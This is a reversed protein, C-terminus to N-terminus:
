IIEMDFNSNKVILKEHKKIVLDSFIVLFLPIVVLSVFGLPTVIFKQLYGLKPIMAVVKGYVNKYSVLSSDSVDNNDGKTRFYLNGNKRVKGVVRHTITMGSYRSDSSTFTIVDGIEINEPNMKKVVIADNVEITPRMSGSVIVYASLFGGTNTNDVKNEISSLLFSGILLVFFFFVIVLAICLSKSIYKLVPNEQKNSFKQQVLVDTM